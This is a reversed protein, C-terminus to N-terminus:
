ANAKVSQLDKVSIVNAAISHHQIIRNTYSMKGHPVVLFFKGDLQQALTSLVMWKSVVLEQDKQPYSVIEFYHKNGNKRATLDPTFSQESGRKKLEAPQEYEDLMQAKIREYGQNQLYGAVSHMMKEHEPTRIKALIM